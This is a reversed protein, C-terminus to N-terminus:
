VVGRLHPRAIVHFSGTSVLACFDGVFTIPTHLFHTRSCSSQATGVSARGISFRAWSHLPSAVVSISSFRGLRARVNHPSRPYPGVGLRGEGVSSAFISRTASTVGWCPVCTLSGQALASSAVCAPKVLACSVRWDDHIRHRDAHTRISKSFSGDIRSPTSFRFRDRESMRYAVLARRMTWRERGISREVGLPSRHPM